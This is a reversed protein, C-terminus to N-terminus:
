SICSESGDWGWGDGDPDLCEPKIEHWSGEMRCSANGDWGWGDGDTDVCEGSENEDVSSNDEENTPPVVPTPELLCPLIHLESTFSNSLPSCSSTPPRITEDKEKVGKQYSFSIEGNSDEDLSLSIQGFPAFNSPQYTSLITGITGNSDIKFIKGQDYFFYFEEEPLNFRYIKPSSSLGDGASNQTTFLPSLTYDGFDSEGFEEIRAAQRKGDYSQIFALKGGIRITYSVKDDEVSYFVNRGCSECAITENQAILVYRPFGSDSLVFRAYRKGVGELKPFYVRPFGWSTNQIEGEPVESVIELSGTLRAVLVLEERRKELTIFLGYKYEPNKLFLISPAGSGAMMDGAPGFVRLGYEPNSSSSFSVHRLDSFYRPQSQNIGRDVIAGSSSVQFSGSEIDGNTYRDIQYTSNPDGEASIDTWVLGTDTVSFKATDDKVEDFSLFLGLEKVFKTQGLKIKNLVITRLQDDRKSHVFLHSESSELNNDYYSIYFKRGLHQTVIIQSEHVHDADLKALFYSKNATIVEEVVKHAPVLGAQIQQISNHTRENDYALPGGMFFDTDGYEESRNEQGAAIGDGDLDIGAHHLGLNHGLEHHLTRLGCHLITADRGGLLAQGGKNCAASNDFTNTVVTWNWQDTPTTFQGRDVLRDLEAQASGTIESFSCGHEEVDTALPYIDAFGDNDHDIDLILNGGSMIATERALNELLTRADAMTCSSDETLFMTIVRTVPGNQPALFNRREVSVKSISSVRFVGDVKYSGSISVTSGSTPVDKSDLYSTDLSIKKNNDLYLYHSSSSGGDLHETILEFLKGQMSEAHASFPLFILVLVLYISFRRFM